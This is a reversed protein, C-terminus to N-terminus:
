QMIMMPSFRQAIAMYARGYPTKLYQLDSMQLKTLFDPSSVSVSTGEDSTSTIVGAVLKTLQFSARLTAFFNQGVQDQADELLIHAALNNVAKDYMLQSVSAIDAFVIELAQAFSDDIVVSNDPLAASTIGVNRLFALFQARTAM